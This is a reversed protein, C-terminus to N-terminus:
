HLRSSRVIVEAEVPRSISTGTRQEARGHVACRDVRLGCQRVPGPRALLRRTKSGTRWTSESRDTSSIVSSPASPRTCESSGTSPSPGSRGDTMELDKLTTFLREFMSQELTQELIGSDHHQSLLPLLADDLLQPLQRHDGVLVIRNMALSMPIMLDLPNARAAEDLIVTDFLGKHTDRMAGSASQQCTAALARPICRSPSEYPAPSTLSLTETTRSRSTSTARRGASRPKTSNIARELLAEVEPRIAVISSAARANMVRDLLVRKLAYMYALQRIADASTAAEDLM